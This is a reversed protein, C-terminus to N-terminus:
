SRQLWDESYRKRAAQRQIQREKKLQKLHVQTPDKWFYRNSESYQRDFVIQHYRDLFPRQKPSSFHRLSASLSSKTLLSSSSILARQNKFFIHNLM